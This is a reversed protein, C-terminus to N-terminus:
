QGLIDEAVFSITEETYKDATWKAVDKEFVVNIIAFQPSLGGVASSVVNINYRNFPRASHYIASANGVTTPTAVGLVMSRVTANLWYAKITGTVKLRGQRYGTRRSGLVPLGEVGQNEDYDMEVIEAVTVNGPQVVVTIEAGHAINEPQLINLSPM